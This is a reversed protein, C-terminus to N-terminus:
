EVLSLSPFGWVECVKWEAECSQSYHLKRAVVFTVHTIFLKNWM